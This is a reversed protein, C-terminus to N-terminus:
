NNVEYSSYEIDYIVFRGWIIFYQNLVKNTIQIQRQM